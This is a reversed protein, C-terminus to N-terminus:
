HFTTTARYLLTDKVSEVGVGFTAVVTALVTLVMVIVFWLVIQVAPTNTASPLLDRVANPNHPQADVTGVASVAAAATLPAASPTVLVFLQTRPRQETSAQIYRALVADTAQALAKAQASDAGYKAAAAVGSFAGVATLQHEYDDDEEEKATAAGCITALEALWAADDASFQAGGIEFSGDAATAAAAAVGCAGLAAVADAPASLPVAGPFAARFDADSSLVRAGIRAVLARGPFADESSPAVAVPAALSLAKSAAAASPLAVLRVRASATPGVLSAFAAPAPRAAQQQQQQQSVPAAGVARAVADAVAGYSCCSAEAAPVAWGEPVYLAAGDDAAVAATVAAVAALLFFFFLRMEKGKKKM